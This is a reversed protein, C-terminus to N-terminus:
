RAVERETLGDLGGILEVVEGGLLLDEGDGLFPPGVAAQRCAVQKGGGELPGLCRRGGRALRLAHGARVCLLFGRSAALTAADLVDPEARCRGDAAACEPGGMPRPPERGSCRRRKLRRPGAASPDASQAAALRHMGPGRGIPRAGPPGGTRTRDAPRHCGRRRYGRRCRAQADPAYSTSAMTGPSDDSQEAFCTRWRLSAPSSQANASM